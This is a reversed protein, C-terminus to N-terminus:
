ATSEPWRPRYWVWQTPDERIWREFTQNIAVLCKEQAGIKGQATDLQIPEEALLVYRSDRLVCRMPVIPAKSARALAAPATMTLADLGLFPLMIGHLRKVRLDSLIGLAEGNKLVQWLDKPSSDQPMTKVDFNERMSVLWRASPDHRRYRGVVAGRHGLHALAAALLEWHGLHATVVIAGRNQKLARQLHKISPDITIADLLRALKKPNAYALQASEATQRALHRFVSQHLRAIAPPSLKGAYVRRLNQRAVKGPGLKAAIWTAPYVCRKAIPHPLLSLGRAFASWAHFRLARRLRKRLPARKATM